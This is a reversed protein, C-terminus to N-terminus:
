GSKRVDGTLQPHPALYQAAADVQRRMLWSQGVIAQGAIAVNGIMALASASVPAQLPLRPKWM